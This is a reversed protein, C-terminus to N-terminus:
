LMEDVLGQEHMGHGQRSMPLNHATRWNEKGSLLSGPKM